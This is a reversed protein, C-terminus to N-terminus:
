VSKLEGIWHEICPFNTEVEIIEIKNKHKNLINSHIENLEKQLISHWIKLDKM